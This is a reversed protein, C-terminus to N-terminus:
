NLDFMAGVGVGVGVPSRRRTPYLLENKLATLVGHPPTVPTENILMNEVRHESIKGSNSDMKYISIGDVYLANRRNGILKPVLVANWTIRISQRTFDYMMRSQVTSLDMNYFIKVLPQLLGFTSRYSRLGSLQVGSPDVVRIDDNYISFDPTKYLISPYDNRLVDMAKGLNMEFERREDVIGQLVTPLETTTSIDTMGGAFINSPEDMLSVSSLLVKQTFYNHKFPVNNIKVKSTTQFGQVSINALLVSITSILCTMKM